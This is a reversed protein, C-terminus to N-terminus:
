YKKSTYVEGGGAQNKGSGATKNLDKSGGTRRIMKADAAISNRKETAAPDAANKEPRSHTQDGKNKNRGFLRVEEDLSEDLDKDKKAKKAGKDEDEKDKKDLWPPLKKGKEADKQTKGDKGKVKDAAAVDPDEDDEEAETIIDAYRRFFEGASEKTNKPKKDKKEKDLAKCAADEKDAKRKDDAQCQKNEWHDKIDDDSMDPNNAAFRNEKVYFGSSENTNEGSMLGRIEYSLEGADYSARGEDQMGSESGGIDSAAENSFGAKRLIASLKEDFANDSYFMGMVKSADLGKPNEWLVGLDGSGDDEDVSVYMSIGTIKVGNFNLNLPIELSYGEGDFHIFKKVNPNTVGEKVDKKDAKKPTGKSKAWAEDADNKKDARKKSAADEEKSEFLPQFKRFFDSSSM